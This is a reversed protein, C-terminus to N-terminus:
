ALREELRVARAIRADIRHCLRVILVVNVLIGVLSVGTLLYFPAESMM